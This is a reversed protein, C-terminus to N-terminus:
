QTYTIQLVPWLTSDSSNSSKFNLSRQPLETQLRLMFGYNTSPNKVMDNVVGTVDIVYNENYATSQALVVQDQATTSPQSSWTVTSDNWPASIRQLYCANSGSDSNHGSGGSHIPTPNYYLYLRASNVTSNASIDTLYFQFLTRGVYKVNNSDKWAIGALDPDNKLNTNPSLNTIYATRGSSNNLRLSLNISNVSVGADDCSMIGSISIGTLITFFLALKKM